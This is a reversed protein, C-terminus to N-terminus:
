VTVGRDDGILALLDAQGDSVVPSRGVQMARAREGPDTVRWQALRCYDGSLDVHIARRGLV